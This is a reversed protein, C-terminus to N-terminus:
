NKKEETTKKEEAAAKDSKGKMSDTKKTGKGTDKAATKAGKGSDKAASGAKKKYVRTTTRTGTLDDKKPKNKDSKTEDVKGSDQAVAISSLPLGLLLAFVFPVLPPIKRPM